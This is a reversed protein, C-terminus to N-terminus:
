THTTEPKGGLTIEAGSVPRRTVKNIVHGTITHQAEHRHVVAWAVIGLAGIIFTLYMLQKILAYAQVTNLRPYINKKLVERFILLVLGIGFGALGAYKGLVEFLKADM